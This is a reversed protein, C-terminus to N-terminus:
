KRIKVLRNGYDIDKMMQKGTYSLEIENIGSLLKKEKLYDISKYLNKYTCKFNARLIVLTRTYNYNFNNLLNLIRLQFNNLKIGNCKVYIIKKFYIENVIRERCSGASWKHEDVVYNFNESVPEGIDVFTNEICPRYHGDSYEICKKWKGDIWVKIEAM